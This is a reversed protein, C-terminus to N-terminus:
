RLELQTLIHFLRLALLLTMVKGQQTHIDLSHMIRKNMVEQSNALPLLTIARGQIHIDLTHM